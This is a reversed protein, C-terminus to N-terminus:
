KYGFNTNLKSKVLIVKVIGVLDFDIELVLVLCM